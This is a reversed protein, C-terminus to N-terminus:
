IGPGKTETTCPLYTQIEDLIHERLLIHERTNAIPRWPAQCTHRQTHTHTYSTHTHANNHAHAHARAIGDGGERACVCARSRM